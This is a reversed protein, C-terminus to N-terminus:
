RKQVLFCAQTLELYEQPMSRFPEIFSNRLEQDVDIHGYKNIELVDFGHRDFIEIFSMPRIRNSEHIMKDITDIRLFELSHINDNNSYSWHDIGDINHVGYGGKKTIRALEACALDIDSIHELCSNSIIVDAEADELTTQFISEQRFNLRKSNDDSLNGESLTVLDFSSLNEIIEQSSIRFDGFVKSPNVITKGVVKALNAISQRLNKPSDPDIAIAKKAGLMLYIFSLGFPNLSGCGVDVFTANKIPLKHNKWFRYTIYFLGDLYKLSFRNEYINLSKEIEMELLSLAILQSEELSTFTIDEKNQHQFRSLLEAALDWNTADSFQNNAQLGFTPLSGYINDTM